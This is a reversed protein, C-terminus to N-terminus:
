DDHGHSEDDDKDVHRTVAPDEGRTRARGAREAQELEEVEDPDVDGAQAIAQEGRRSKVFSQEAENFRRASEKDGEGQNRNSADSPRQGKTKGKTTGPTNSNAM